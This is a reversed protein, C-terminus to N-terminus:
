HLKGEDRLILATKLFLSRYNKIRSDFHEKIIIKNTVIDEFIKKLIGRLVKELYNKDMGKLAFLAKAFGIEDVILELDEPTFVLRQVEKEFNLEPVIDEYYIDKISRFAKLLSYFRNEESQHFAFDIDELFLKIGNKSMVKFFIKEIKEKEVFTLAEVLIKRPISMVVKNIKENNESFELLWETLSKKEMQRKLIAIEYAKRIFEFRQFFPLSVELERSAVLLNRNIIYSVEEAWRYTSFIRKSRVKEEVERRVRSSLNELIRDGDKGLNRIYSALMDISAIKKSLIHNLLLQLKSDPLQLLHKEFNVVPSLLRKYIFNELHFIDEMWGIEFFNCLNKVIEETVVLEAVLKFDREIKEISFRLANKLSLSGGVFGKNQIHVKVGLLARFFSPNMIEGILGKYYIYNEDSIVQQTFLYFEGYKEKDVILLFKIGVEFDFNFETKIESVKWLVPIFLYPFISVKEMYVIKIYISM